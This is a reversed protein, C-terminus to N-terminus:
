VGWVFDSVKRLDGTPFFHLVYLKLGSNKCRVEIFFEGYKKAKFRLLCDDSDLQTQDSALFNRVTKMAVEFREVKIAKSM